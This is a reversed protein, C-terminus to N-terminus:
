EQGFSIGNCRDGCNFFLGSFKGDESPKIQYWGSNNGSNDKMHITFGQHTSMVSNVRGDYIYRMAQDSSIFGHQLRLFIFAVIVAVAILIVISIIGKHQYWKKSQKSYPTTALPQNSQQIEM